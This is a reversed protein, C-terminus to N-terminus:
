NSQAAVPEIIFRLDDRWVLVRNGPLKLEAPVRVAQGGCYRFLPAERSNHKSSSSHM